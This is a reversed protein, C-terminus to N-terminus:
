YHRKGDSWRVIRLVLTQIGTENGKLANNGHQGLGLSSDEDALLGDFPRLDSELLTVHLQPTDV